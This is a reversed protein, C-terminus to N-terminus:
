CRGWEADAVHGLVERCGDVECLLVKAEICVQDRERRAGAVHDCGKSRALDIDANTQGLSPDGAQALLVCRTVASVFHHAGIYLRRETLIRGEGHLESEM